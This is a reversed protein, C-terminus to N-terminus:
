IQNDYESFLQNIRDDFGTIDPPPFPSEDASSSASESSPSSSSSQTQDPFPSFGGMGFAQFPNQTGFSFDPNMGSFGNETMSMLMQLMDPSMGTFSALMDIPSSNTNHLSFQEIMDINRLANIIIRIENFKIFLALPLKFPYDVYPILMELMSLSSSGTIQSLPHQKNYDM